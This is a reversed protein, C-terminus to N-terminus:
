HDTITYRRADKIITQREQGSSIRHFNFLHPGLDDSRMSRRTHCEPLPCKLGTYKNHRSSTRLHRRFNSMADQFSGKFIMSCARCSVESSTQASADSPAPSNSAHSETTSPSAWTTRTTYVSSVDSEALWYPESVVSPFRDAFNLATLPILHTSAGRSREINSVSDDLTSQPPDSINFPPMEAYGNSTPSPSELSRLRPLPEQRAPREISCGGLFEHTAISDQLGFRRKIRRINSVKPTTALPTVQIRFNKFMKRETRMKKRCQPNEAEEDEVMKFSKRKLGQTRHSYPISTTLDQRLPRLPFPLTKRALGVHARCIRSQCILRRIKQRLLIRILCSAYWVSCGPDKSIFVTSKCGVRPCCESSGADYKGIIVAMTVNLGPTLVESETRSIIQSSDLTNFLEYEGACIKKQMPGNEFQAIIIAEFKQQSLNSSDILLIYSM